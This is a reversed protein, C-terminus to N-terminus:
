RVVTGTFDEGNLIRALNDLDRGDAFILKLGIQAARATAVPDFPMSRGPVWESGVIEQYTAWDLEALPTAAPNKAPDADYIQAINSLCLLRKTGVHEALLVSDYDTSFGPKGGGGVVIRGLEAVPPLQDYQTLLPQAVFNKKEGTLSLALLRLYEGNLHTARIGLWDLNPESVAAFERSQQCLAGVAQQYRRAPAGGGIVLGLHHLEDQQLWHHLFLLIETAFATDPGDCNTPAIISGGLDIVLWEQKKDM